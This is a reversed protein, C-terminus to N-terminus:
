VGCGGGAREREVQVRGDMVDRAAAEVRAQMAQTVLARNHRDLAWSVGQEKLGLSLRAQRTGGNRQDRAEVAALYVANDIRKVM